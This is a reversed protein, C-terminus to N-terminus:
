NEKSALESEIEWIVLCLNLAKYTPFSLILYLSATSCVDIRTSQKKVGVVLVGGDGCVLNNAVGRACCSGNPSFDFVFPMLEMKADLARIVPPVIVWTILLSPGYWRKQPTIGRQLIERTFSM